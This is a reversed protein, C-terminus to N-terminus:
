PFILGTSFSSASAKGAPSTERATRRLAAEARQEPSSQMRRCPQAFCGPQRCARSWSCGQMRRCPRYSNRNAHSSGQRAPLPRRLVRIHVSPQYSQISLLKLSLFGRRTNLLLTQQLWVESHKAGRGSTLAFILPVIWRAKLTKAPIPPSCSNPSLLETGCVAGLADGDRRSHRGCGGPSLLPHQGLSM